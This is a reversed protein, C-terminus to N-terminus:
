RRRHPFPASYVPIAVSTDRRSESMGASPSQRTPPAYTFRTPDGSRGTRFSPISQNESSPVFALRRRVTSAEAHEAERM